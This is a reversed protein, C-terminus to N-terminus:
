REPGLPVRVVDAEDLVIRLGGGVSSSPHEGERIWRRGEFRGTEAAFGGPVTVRSKRGVLVISTPIRKTAPVEIALLAGEADSEVAISVVGARVQARGGNESVHWGLRDTGQADVIPAMARNVARYVERLREGGEELEGSSPDVLPDHGPRHSGTTIAWVDMGIGPVKGLLYFLSLHSRYYVDTDTEPIFIANRGRHYREIQHLFGSRFERYDRDGVHFLFPKGYLDPGM